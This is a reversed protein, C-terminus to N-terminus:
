RYKDTKVLKSIPIRKLNTLKIFLILRYSHFVAITRREKM